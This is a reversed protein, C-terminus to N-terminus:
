RPFYWSRGWLVLQQSAISLSWRDLTVEPLMARYERGKRAFYKSAAKSSWFCTDLSVVVHGTEDRVTYRVIWINVSM